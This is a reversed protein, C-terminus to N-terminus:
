KIVNLKQTLVESGISVKVFYDGTAFTSLDILTRSTGPNRMEAPMSYVLQGAMNYVEFKVNDAAVLNLAVTASQSAPNPYVELSGSNGSVTAVGVRSITTDIIRVAAYGAQYVYKTADDEVWVVIKGNKSSDYSWVRYDSAWPHDKTWSGTVTQTSGTTFAALTSGAAPFMNEAVEPFLTQPISETSQNAAYLMTDVTLAAYAKLGAPIPGASTIVASFTYTHTTSNHTPTVAITLPSGFAALEGIVASSLGGAGPYVYQGDVQADPVGSVSYYSLRSSVFPALTVSDMCDRGPFNVHYRVMISTALNNVYVSDLNPTAAACPDCSAQNFEDLLVTKPGLHDVVLISSTFTDNSHVEDVGSGNIQDAWVKIVYTGATSPVWPTTSTYTYDSGLANSLGTLSTTVPTGGNVSYNLNCSTTTTVGFNHLVGTIPNSSGTQVFPAMYMATVGLDLTPLVSTQVNDVLEGWNNNTNDRFAVTITTGNYATLPVKHTTLGGTGAPASYITATFSGATVGATPSVLVQIAEGSGLDYDDWQIVMSDSTVNFPPTILWRDATASPTFMSTTIMQYDGSSLAEIPYWAYKDLSDQLWVLSTFGPASGVATRVTHGDNILTWGAPVPITGANFNELALQANASAALGIAAVFTLLLKKM